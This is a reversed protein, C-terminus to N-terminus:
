NASGPSRLRAKLWHARWRDVPKDVFVYILWGGLFAAFINVSLLGLNFWVPREWDAHAYYWDRPIWHFMYVPYAWNGLERDWRPSPQRVNLALYPVFMLIGALLWLKPWHAILGEGSLKRSVAESGSIWFGSRTEPWIIMALTGAVFVAALAVAMHKSPTWESKHLGIGICFLGWWAGLYPAEMSGGTALYWGSYAVGLSGLFLWVSGSSIWKAGSGMAVVAVFVFALYFQMEVDLSWQPPLPTGSWTSGIIPLQRLFWDLSYGQMAGAWLFYLCICIAMVPFLRWWRSVIFTLVPKPANSYKEDWMKSIWYGSLVFFVLVAWGGLRLPTSHHLVVLGAFLIRFVGPSVM